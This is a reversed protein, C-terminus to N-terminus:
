YVRYKYTVFYQIRDPYCNRVGVVRDSVTFPNDLHLCLCINESCSYDYKAESLVIKLQKCDDVRDWIVRLIFANGVRM